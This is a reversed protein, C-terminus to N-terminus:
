TALGSPMPAPLPSNDLTSTPNLAPGGQPPFPPLIISGTPTRPQPNLSGARGERFVSPRLGLFKGLM